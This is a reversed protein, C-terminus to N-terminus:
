KRSKTPKVRDGPKGLDVGKEAVHKQLLVEIYNSITRTDAEALAKVAEALADSVRVSLIVLRKEKAM